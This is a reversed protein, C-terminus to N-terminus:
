VATMGEGLEAVGHVVIIVHTLGGEDSTSMELCAVCGLGGARALIIGRAGGSLRVCPKGSRFRVSEIDRWYVAANGVGVGLRRIGTGLAKGICEKAAFCSALYSVGRCGMGDGIGGGMGRRRAEAVEGEAFVRSLFRGGYREVLRAIRAHDCLDTGIGLIM